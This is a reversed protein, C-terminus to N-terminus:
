EREGSSKGGRVMKEGEREGNESKSAGRGYRVRVRDTMRGM